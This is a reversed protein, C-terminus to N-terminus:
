QLTWSKRLRIYGERHGLRWEGGTRALARPSPHVSSRVAELVVWRRGIGASPLEDHWPALLRLTRAIREIPWVDWDLLREGARFNRARATTSRVSQAWETLQGRAMDKLVKEYLSAGATALTTILEEGTDIDAAPIPLSQGVIAGTDEGADLRHITVGVERVNDVIQWALPNAGRYAPLLSPHLNLFGCRPITLLEIPLLQSMSAVCAVDPRTARLLAAFEPMNARRLRVFSIAHRAAFQDLWPRRLLDRTLRKAV